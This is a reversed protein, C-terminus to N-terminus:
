RIAAAPAVEDLFRGIRELYARGGKQVIGREQKMKMARRTQDRLGSQIKRLQEVQKVYAQGIKNFNSSLRTISERAREANYRITAERRFAEELASM